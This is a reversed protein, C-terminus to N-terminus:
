SVLETLELYIPFINLINTDSAVSRRYHFTKQFREIIEKRQEQVSAHKLFEVDAEYTEECLPVLPTQLEPPEIPKQRKPIYKNGIVKRKYAQVTKFRTAIYGTRSTQDYFIEQLIKNKIM